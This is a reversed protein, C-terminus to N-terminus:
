AKSRASKHARWALLTVGFLLAVGLLAAPSAEPVLGPNYVGAVTYTWDDSIPASYISLDPFLNGGLEFAGINLLHDDYFFKFGDLKLVEGTPSNSGTVSLDSLPLSGDVVLSNIQLYDEPIGTTSRLIGWVENFPQTVPVSYSDGATFGNAGLSLYNAGDVAIAFPNNQKENWWRSIREGPPADAPYMYMPFDAGDSAGGPVGAELIHVAISYNDPAYYYYYAPSAQMKAYWSVTPYYGNVSDGDIYATHYRNPHHFSNLEEPTLPAVVVTARSFLPSLALLM